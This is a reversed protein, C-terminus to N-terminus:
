SRSVGSRGYYPVGRLLLKLTQWHIRAFVALTMLPYRFFAWALRIDSLPKVTGSVSASILPGDNDHYEVHSVIREAAAGQESRITRLFRFRYNGEVRSLQSVQFVKKARLEAGWRLTDDGNDLLYCHRTGHNSNIEVVIARLAEDKRHCFWFSASNHVYGLVRPFTQLWVEGDADTIGADRLQADIWELASSRGDGHDSDHFSFLGFRNRRCLKSGFDHDGLTRLPLLLSFVKYSFANKVPRLRAHRVQGFVLRPEASLDTM